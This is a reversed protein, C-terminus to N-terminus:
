INIVKEKNYLLHKIILYVIKMIDKINYLNKM